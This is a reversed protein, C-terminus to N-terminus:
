SEKEQNREQSLGQNRCQNLNGRSGCVVGKLLCQLTTQFSELRENPWTLPICVTFCTQSHHSVLLCSGVQVLCCVSQHFKQCCFCCFSHHRDYVHGKTNTKKDMTTNIAAFVSPGLIGFCSRCSACTTSYGHFTGSWSWCCVVEVQYPLLSHSQDALSTLNAFPCWQLGKQERGKTLNTQTLLLQFCPSCFGFLVQWPSICCPLMFFFYYICGTVWM